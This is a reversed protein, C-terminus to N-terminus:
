YTARGVWNYAHFLSIFPKHLSEFKKAHDIKFRFAILSAPMLREIFDILLFYQVVDDVPERSVNSSNKYQILM